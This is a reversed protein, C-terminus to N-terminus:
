MSRKRNAPSHLQCKHIRFGTGIHRRRKIQRSYSRSYQVLHLIQIRKTVSPSPISLYRSVHFFIRTAIRTAIKSNKAKVALSHIVVNKNNYLNSNKGFDARCYIENENIKCEDHITAAIKIKDVFIIFGSKTM